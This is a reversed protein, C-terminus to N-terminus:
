LKRARKQSSGSRQSRQSSQSQSEIAKQTLKRVRTSRHLGSTNSGADEDQQSQQGQQAVIDELTPTQQSYGDSTIATRQSQEDDEGTISMIEDDDNVKEAEGKEERELRADRVLEANATTNQTCLDQLDNEFADELGRNLNDPSVTKLRLLEVVDRLPVPEFAERELVWEEMRTLERPYMTTLPKTLAKL